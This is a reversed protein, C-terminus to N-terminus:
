LPIPLLFVATVEPTMSSLPRCARPDRTPAGRRRAVAAHTCDRARPGACLGCSARKATFYLPVPLAAGSSSCVAVYLGGVACFARPSVAAAGGLHRRVTEVSLLLLARLEEAVGDLITTHKCISPRGNVLGDGFVDSGICTCRSIGQADIWVCARAPEGAEDRRWSQWRAIDGFMGPIMWIQERGRLGAWGRMWSLCQTAVTTDIEYETALDVASSQALREGIVRKLGRDFNRETHRRSGAKRGGRGHGPGRRM